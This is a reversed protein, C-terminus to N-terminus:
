FKPLYTLLRKGVMEWIVLAVIVPIAAMLIKQVNKM